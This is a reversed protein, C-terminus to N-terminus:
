IDQGAVIVTKQGGKEWEAKVAEDATGAAINFIFALNDIVTRHGSFLSFPYEGGQIFAANIINHFASVVAIHIFGKLNKQLFADLVMGVTLQQPPLPLHFTVPVGQGHGPILPLRDVLSNEHARSHFM